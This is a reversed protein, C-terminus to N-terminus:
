KKANNTTLHVYNNYSGLQWFLNSNLKQRKVRLSRPSPWIARGLFHNCYIFLFFFHIHYKIYIYIVKTFTHTSLFWLCQGYERCKMFFICVLNYDSGQNVGRLEHTLYNCWPRPEQICVYVPGQKM